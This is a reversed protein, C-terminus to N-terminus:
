LVRVGFFTKALNFNEGIKSPFISINTLNTNWFSFFISKLLILPQKYSFRSSIFFPVHLNKGHFFYSPFNKTCGTCFAQLLLVATYYYCQVKSMNLSVNQILICLFYWLLQRMFFNLCHILRLVQKNAIKWFLIPYFVLLQLM